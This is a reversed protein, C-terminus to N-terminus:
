PKFRIEQLLTNFLVREYGESANEWDQEYKEEEVQRLGFSKFNRFDDGDELNRM